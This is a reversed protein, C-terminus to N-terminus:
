TGRLRAPRWRYTTFSGGIVTVSASGFWDGPPRAAGRPKEIRLQPDYIRTRNRAVSGDGTVTALAERVALAAEEADLPALVSDAYAKTQDSAWPALEGEPRGPDDGHEAM